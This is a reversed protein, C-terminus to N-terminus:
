LKRKGKSCFDDDKWGYGYDKESCYPIGREHRHYKCERCRIIESQTAITPANDIITLAWADEYSREPRKRDVEARIADADILRM